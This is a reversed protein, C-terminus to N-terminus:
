TTDIISSGTFYTAPREENNLDVNLSGILSFNQLEYMGQISLTDCSFEAQKNSFFDISACPEILILPM